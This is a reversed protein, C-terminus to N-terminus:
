PTDYTCDRFTEFITGSIACPGRKQSVLECVQFCHSSSSSTNGQNLSSMNKLDGGHIYELATINLRPSLLLFREPNSLKVRLDYLLKVLNQMVSPNKKKKAPPRPRPGCHQLLDRFIKQREPMLFDHCEVCSSNQIFETLDINIKDNLYLSTHPSNKVFVRLDPFGHIPHLHLYLLHLVLNKEGIKCVTINKHTRHERFPLKPRYVHRFIQLPATKLIRQTDQNNYITIDNRLRNSYNRGVHVCFTGMCSELIKRRRSLNSNTNSLVVCSEYRGQGGCDHSRLMMSDRYDPKSFLTRFLYGGGVGRFSCAKKLFQRGVNSVTRFWNYHLSSQTDKDCWWSILPSPPGFVANFSKKALGAGQYSGLVAIISFIRYFSDFGNLRTATPTLGVKEPLTQTYVEQICHLAPMLDMAKLAGDSGSHPQHPLSCVDMSRASIRLKFTNSVENKYLLLIRLPKLHGYSTVSCPDESHHKASLTGSTSAGVLLRLNYSNTPQKRGSYRRANTGPKHKTPKRQYPTCHMCQKDLELNIKVMTDSTVVSELSTQGALLSTDNERIETSHERGHDEQREQISNQCM